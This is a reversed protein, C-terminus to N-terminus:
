YYLAPGFPYCVKSPVKADKEQEHNYKKVYSVKIAM